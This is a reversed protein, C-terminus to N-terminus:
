PEWWTVEHPGDLIPANIDDEEPYSYTSFQTTGEPLPETLFFLASDWGCGSMDGGVAILWGHQVKGKIVDRADEGGELYPARSLLMGRFKTKDVHGRVYYVVEDTMCMAVPEELKFTDVM